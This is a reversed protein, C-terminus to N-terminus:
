YPFNTIYIYILSFVSLIHRSISIVNEITLFKSFLSSWLSLLITDVLFQHANDLMMMLNKSNKQLQIRCCFFYPFYFFFSKIDWFDWLFGEQNTYFSNRFSLDLFISPINKSIFGFITSVFVLWDVFIQKDININKAERM